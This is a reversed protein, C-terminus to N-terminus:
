ALAPTRVKGWIVATVFALWSGTNEETEQNSIEPVLHFAFHCEVLLQTTQSGM